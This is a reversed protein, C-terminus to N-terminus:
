TRIIDFDQFLAKNMVLQDHVVSVLSYARDYSYFTTFVGVVKVKEVLQLAQTPKPNPM